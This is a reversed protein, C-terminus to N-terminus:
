TNLQMGSFLPGIWRMLSYSIELWPHLGFNPVLCPHEAMEKVVHWDNKSVGNVAFRLVGSDFAAHILQPAIAHIRQDPIISSM